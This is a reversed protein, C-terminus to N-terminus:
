RQEDRKFQLIGEFITKVLLQQYDPDLLKEEEQPHSLFGVEILVAPMAAGKLSLLPAAFVGRSKIRAQGAAQAQIAQALRLSTQCYDRQALDWHTLEPVAPVAPVSSPWSQGSLVYVALGQAQQALDANAHLSIFLDAKNNNAIAVRKAWSLSEDKERTLIVRVGLRKTALQALQGALKLTLEKERLGSVGKVGEDEGGHGPDIVLTRWPASKKQAAWAPALALQGWLFLGVLGAAMVRMIKNV